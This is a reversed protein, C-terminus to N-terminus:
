ADIRIGTVEFITEADIGRDAMKRANEANTTAKGKALGVAEGKALGIAEGKTLAHKLRTNEDWEARLRGEILERVDDTAYANNMADFAMVIEEEAQISEPLEELGVGYYEAFKLAHLWKELLTVLPQDRRFKSLEIYHIELIDSLELGHEPERFRFRTHLSQVQPFLTFDLISIAVTRTLQTYDGGREIQESYLKSLYFLSREIYAPQERLQVEINYQRGLGDRARVDLIAGKEALYAKTIDRGLLTLEVIEEEGSLGLVANLLSRLLAENQPSGFVIKFIIDNLFTRRLELM